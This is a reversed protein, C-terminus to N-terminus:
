NKSTGVTGEFLKIVCNRGSHAEAPQLLSDTATLTPCAEAIEWQKTLITASGQSPLGVLSVPIAPDSERSLVPGRLRPDTTCGRKKQFGQGVSTPSSSQNVSAEPQRIAKKVRTGYGPIVPKFRRSGAFISMTAMCLSPV